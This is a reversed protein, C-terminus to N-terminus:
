LKLHESLGEGGEAVIEEIPYNEPFILQKKCPKSGYNYVWNEIGYPTHEEFQIKNMYKEKIKIVFRICNYKKLLSNKKLNIIIKSLFEDEIYFLTSQKRSGFKPILKDNFYLLINQKNTLNDNIIKEIEDTLRKLLNYIYEEFNDIKIDINFYKIYSHINNLLSNSSLSYLFRKINNKNIKEIEAITCFYDKLFKIQEDNNIFNCILNIQDDNYYKNKNFKYLDYFETFILKNKKLYNIQKLKDYSLSNILSQVFDKYKMEEKIKIFLIEKINEGKKINNILVTYNLIDDSSKIINNKLINMKQKNDSNSIIQDIVNLNYNYVDFNLEFKSNFTLYSIIDNIDKDTKLLGIQNIYNVLNLNKNKQELSILQQNLEPDLLIFSSNDICKFVNPKIEQKFSYRLIIDNIVNNLTINQITENNINIVNFVLYDM